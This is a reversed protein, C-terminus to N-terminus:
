SGLLAPPKTFAFWTIFVAGLLPLIGLGFIYCVLIGRRLMVHQHAEPSGFRKLELVLGSVASIFGVGFCAFGIIFFWNYM